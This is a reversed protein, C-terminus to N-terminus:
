PYGQLLNCRTGIQLEDNEGKISKGVSYHYESRGTLGMSVSSDFRWYRILPEARDTGDLLDAAGLYGVPQELHARTPGDSPRTILKRNVHPVTM